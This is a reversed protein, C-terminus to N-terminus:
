ISTSSTTKQDNSDKNKYDICGNKDYWDKHEEKLMNGILSYAKKLMIYIEDLSDETEPVWPVSENKYRLPYKKKHLNLIHAHARSIYYQLFRIDFQRCCDPKLTSMEIPKGDLERRIDCLHEFAHFSEMEVELNNHRSFRLAMMALELNDNM